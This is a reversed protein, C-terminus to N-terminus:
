RFEASRHARASRHRTSPLYQNEPKRKLRPPAAGLPPPMSLSRAFQPLYVKERISGHVPFSRMECLIRGHEVFTCMVRFTDIHNHETTACTTVRMRCNVRAFNRFFFFNNLFLKEKSRSTIVIYDAYANASINYGILKMLNLKRTVAELVLQFMVTPLADNMGSAIPFPESQEKQVAVIPKSDRM